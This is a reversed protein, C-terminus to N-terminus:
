LAAARDLEYVVLTFQEFPVGELFRRMGLKEMVRWSAVNAPTTISIIRELALEGFAWDRVALAAETALGKGWWDSHLRWGIEVDGPFARHHSLGDFGLFTGTARDEVAFLGYGWQEWHAEIRDVLADSEDRAMVGSLHRQVEPDANIAAFPARDGPRWERLLLRETEIQV